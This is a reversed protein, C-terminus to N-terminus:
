SGEPTSRVSLVLAVAGALGVLVGWGLGADALLTAVLFAVCFLAAAVGPVLQLGPVPRRPVYLGLWAVFGLLPLVYWAWGLWAPPLGDLDGGAEGVARALDYGSVGELWPALGALVVLLAGLQAVALRRM